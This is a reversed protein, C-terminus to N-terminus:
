PTAEQPQSSPSPERDRPVGADLVRRMAQVASVAEASKRIHEPPIVSLAEILIWAARELADARELGRRVGLNFGDTWGRQQALLMRKPDAVDDRARWARQELAWAQRTQEAPSMHDADPLKKPRYADMRDALQLASEVLAPSGGANFLLEAYARVLAASLADQARVLFFPEGPGLTQVKVLQDYDERGSTPAPAPKPETDRIRDGGGVDEDAPLVPEPAPDHPGHLEM